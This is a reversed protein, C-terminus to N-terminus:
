VTILHECLIITVGDYSAIVGVSDSGLIVNYCGECLFAPSRNARLANHFKYTTYYWSVKCYNMTMSCNDQLSMYATKTTMVGTNSFLWLLKQRSQVGNLYWIVTILSSLVPSRFSFCQLLGDVSHSVIAARVLYVRSSGVPVLSDSPTLSDIATLLSPTKTKYLGNGGIVLWNRGLSMRQKACCQAVGQCTIRPM